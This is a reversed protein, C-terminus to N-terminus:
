KVIDAYIYNADIDSVIGRQVDKVYDKKAWATNKMYIPVLPGHEKMIEESQFLLKARKEPDTETTAAVVAKDFEANAFGTENLGSDSQLRELYTNPDNYDPGYGAFVIDFVHSEMIEYRQKTQVLSIELKIGLNKDLMDQLAEASLKRDPRDDTLFGIKPIQDKTAGLETLAKQLYEEAKALNAKPEYWAVPFKEGWLENGIMMENPCYRLAPKSGDNFIAKIYNERDLAYGIAKRFNDNALFKGAETTSKLNCELWWEVAGSYYLAKGETEYKSIFEKPINVFDIEGNEYMNLATNQDPIILINVEDLKISDKDWYEENKVLKLSQEHKWEKLVYPGNGMTKEIETGYEVGYKEAVDLRIPYFFGAAQLGLFYPIPENLTIELTQEDIAKLGVQSKDKIEGKNFAEGNVIMFGYFAYGGNPAPPNPDILRIIGDVYNQATVPQGDWWKANDRLHFTYIRGDDSIDWSEAVGPELKGNKWVLLGDYIAERVMSSLSEVGDQPDLSPPEGNLSFNLVKPENAPTAPTGPAPAAPAGPPSCATFLMTIILAFVILINPKKRM